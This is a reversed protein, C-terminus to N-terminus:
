KHKSQNPLKPYKTTKTWKTKETFLNFLVRGLDTYPAPHKRPVYEQSEDKTDLLNNTSRM